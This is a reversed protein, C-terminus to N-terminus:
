VLGADGDNWHQFNTTGRVPITAGEATGEVLATKNGKLEFFVLRIASSFNTNNSSIPKRHWQNDASRM